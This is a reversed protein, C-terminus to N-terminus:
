ESAFYIILNNFLDGLLIIEKSRYYPNHVHSKNWNMSFFLGMLICLFFLTTPKKFCLLLCLLFFYRGCNIYGLAVMMLIKTYKRGLRKRMKQLDPDNKM